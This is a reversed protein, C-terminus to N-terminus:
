EHHNSLGQVEAVVLSVVSLVSSASSQQASLELSTKIRYVYNRGFLNVGRVGLILPTPLSVFDTIKKLFILM